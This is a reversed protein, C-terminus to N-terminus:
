IRLAKEGAIALRDIFRIGAVDDTEHAVVVEEDAVREGLFRSDGELFHWPKRRFTECEEVVVGRRM